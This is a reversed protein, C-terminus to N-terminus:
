NRIFVVTGKTGVWAGAPKVITLVGSAFDWNMDTVLQNAMLSAHNNNTYVDVLCWGAYDNLQVTQTTTQEFEFANQIVKIQPINNMTGTAM